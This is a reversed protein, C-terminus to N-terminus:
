DLLPIVFALYANSENRPSIEFLRNWSVRIQKRKFFNVLSLSFHMAIWLTAENFVYETSSIQQASITITGAPMM